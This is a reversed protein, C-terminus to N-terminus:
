LCYVYQCLKCTNENKGKEFFTWVDKAATSGKSRNRIQKKQPGRPSGSGSGFHPILNLLKIGTLVSVMLHAQAQIARLGLHVRAQVLM